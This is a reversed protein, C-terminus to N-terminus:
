IIVAEVNGRDRGWQTRFRVPRRGAFLSIVPALGKRFGRSTELYPTGNARVWRVWTVFPGIGGKETVLELTHDAHNGKMTEIISL